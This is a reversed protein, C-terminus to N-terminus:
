VYKKGGNNTDTRWKVTRILADPVNINQRWGLNALKTTDASGRQVISQLALRPQGDSEVVQFEEFTDKVVALFDRISYEKSGAVNYADTQKTNRLLYIANFLDLSYLFNRTALGDSNLVFPQNNIISKVVQAFIRTDELRIGPGFTHYIRLVNTNVHESFGYALSESFKKAEPYLSHLDLPNIASFDNERTPYQTNPGYVEGSSFLYMMAHSNKCRKLLRLTLDINKDVLEEIGNVVDVLSAPSASHIVTKFNIQSFNNKLDDYDLFTTFKTFGYMALGLKSVRSSVAYIKTEVGARAAVSEIISTLYYGLMGSSGTILFPGRLWDIDLDAGHFSIFELADLQM